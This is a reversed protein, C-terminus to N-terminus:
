IYVLDHQRHIPTTESRGKSFLHRKTRTKALQWAVIDGVNNFLFLSLPCGHKTGFRLLLTDLRKDNLM